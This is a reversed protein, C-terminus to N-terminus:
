LFCSYKGIRAHSHPWSESYHWMWDFVLCPGLSPLFDLGRRSSCFNGSNRMVMIIMMRWVEFIWDPESTCGLVRFTDVTVLYDECLVIARLDINGLSSSAPQEFLGDFLNGLFELYCVTLCVCIAPRCDLEPGGDRMPFRIGLKSPDYR